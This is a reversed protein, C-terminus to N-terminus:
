GHRRSFVAYAIAFTTCAGVAVTLGIARLVNIGSLALLGFVMATSVVCAILAQLTRRRQEDDASQWSFFVTYDIGIGVVLLAALIHLMTIREGILALFATTVALSFVLVALSRGVASLPHRLLVLLLMAVAIGLALLGLAEKRAASLLDHSLAKLDILEAGPTASALQHLAALDTVDSLPLFGYWRGDSGVLLQDLRAGLPTDAMLKLGARASLPLATRSAEVAELFPAFLGQKFPLGEMAQVLADTLAGNSPLDSQREAQRALSPLYRSPADFGALGGAAVAGDLRPALAESRRLVTEADDGGILMLYRLDPAGLDARLRRDLQKAADPLPNLAGIDTEFLPAERTTLWIVAVSAIAVTTWTM